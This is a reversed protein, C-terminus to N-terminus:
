GRGAEEDLAALAAEQRRHLAAIDMTGDRPADRLERVAAALDALREAEFARLYQTGSSETGLGASRAAQEAQRAMQRLREEIRM